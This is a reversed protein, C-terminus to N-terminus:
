STRSKKAWEEIADSVDNLTVAAQKFHQDPLQEINENLKGLSSHLTDQFKRDRYVTSEVTGFYWLYMSGFLAVLLLIHYIVWDIGSPIWINLITWTWVPIEHISSGSLLAGIIAFGWSVIFWLATVSFLFGIIGILAAPLCGDERTDKMKYKTLEVPHVIQNSATEPKQADTSIDKKASIPKNKSEKVRSDSVVVKPLSEDAGHRHTKVPQEAIIPLSHDLVRTHPPLTFKGNRQKSANLVDEVADVLDDVDPHFHRDSIIHANRRSLVKLDDPLTDALPMQAGRVLVPIVRINRRLATAIELRVFDNPNDLRRNGHEDKIELWQKGIIALLIECSGVADEIVEVFDEGPAITDIDTFLNTKGFSYSLKDFLRGVYGASDDRRYSIFIQSV